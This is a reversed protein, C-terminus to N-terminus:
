NQKENSNLINNKLYSKFDVFKLLKRRRTCLFLLSLFTALQILLSQKLKSDHYTIELNGEGSPLSLAMKNDPTKTIRLPKNKFTAKFSNSYYYNITLPTMRPSNSFLAIGGSTIEIRSLNQDKDPSNIIPIPTRVQYLYVVGNETEDYQYNSNPYQFTDLLIFDPSRIEEDASIIYKISNESLWNRNRSIQEVTPPFNQSLSEGKDYSCNPCALKLLSLGMDINDLERYSPIIKIGFNSNLESDLSLKINRGSNKYIEKGTLLVRFNPDNIHYKEIWNVTRKEYNSFRSDSVSVQQWMGMYRRLEINASFSYFILVLSLLYFIGKRNFLKKDRASYALILTIALNIVMLNVWPLSTIFPVKVNLTEQLNADHLQNSTALARAIYEGYPLKTRLLVFPNIIFLLVEIGISYILIKNFMNIKIKSFIISTVILLLIPLANFNNRYYSFLFKSTIPHIYLISPALFLTFIIFILKTIFKKEEETYHKKSCFTYGIVSLICFVPVYMLIASGEIPYLLTHAGNSLVFQWYELFNTKSEPIIGLENLRDKRRQLLFLYPYWFSMTGAAGTLSFYIFSKLQIKNSKKIMWILALNLLVINGTALLDPGICLILIFYSILYRIQLSGTYKLYFYIFLPVACIFCYLSTFPYIISWYAPLTASLLATFLSLTKKNTIYYVLHYTGIQLLSLFLCTKILIFQVPTIDLFLLLHLPNSLNIYGAVESLKELGLGTFYNMEPIRFHHLERQLESLRSIHIADAWSYDWNPFRNGPYQGYQWMLLSSFLFFGINSRSLIRVFLTM